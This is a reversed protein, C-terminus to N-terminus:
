ELVLKYPSNKLWVVVGPINIRTKTLYHFADRGDKDLSFVMM